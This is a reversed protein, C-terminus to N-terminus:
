WVSDAMKKLFRFSQASSFTGSESDYRGNKVQRFCFVRSSFDYSCTELGLPICCFCRLYLSLCVFSLHVSLCVSRLQKESNLLSQLKKLETEQTAITKKHSARVVNFWHLDTCLMDVVVSLQLSVSFKCLAQYWYMRLIMILMVIVTIVLAHLRMRSNITRTKNKGSEEWRGSWRKDKWM